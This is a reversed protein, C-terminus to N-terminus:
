GITGNSKRYSLSYDFFDGFVSIESYSTSGIYTIGAAIRQPVQELTWIRSGLVVRHARDLPVM